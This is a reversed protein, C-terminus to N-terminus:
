SHRRGALPPRTSRGGPGSEDAPSSGSPAAPAPASPTAPAEGRVREVRTELFRAMRYFDSEPRIFRVQTVLTAPDVLRAFPVYVLDLQGAVSVM